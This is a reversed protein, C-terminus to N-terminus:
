RAAVLAAPRIPFEHRVLPGTTVEIGCEQEIEPHGAAKSTKFDRSHYRKVEDLTWAEYGALMLNIYQLM